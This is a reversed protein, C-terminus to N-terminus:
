EAFPPVPLTLGADAAGDVLTAAGETGEDVWASEV